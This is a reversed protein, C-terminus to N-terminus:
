NKRYFMLGGIHSFYRADYSTVTVELRGLLMLTVDKKGRWM